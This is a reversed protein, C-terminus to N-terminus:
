KCSRMASMNDESRNSVVLSTGKEREGVGGLCGERGIHRGTVAGEDASATGGGSLGSREEGPLGGGRLAFIGNTPLLGRVM